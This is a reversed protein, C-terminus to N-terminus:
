ANPDIDQHKGLVVAEAILQANYTAIHVVKEIGHRM